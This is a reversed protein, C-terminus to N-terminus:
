LPHRMSLYQAIQQSLNKGLDEVLRFAGGAKPSVTKQPYKM